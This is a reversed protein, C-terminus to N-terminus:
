THANFPVKANASPLVIGRGERVPMHMQLIKDVSPTAAVYSVFLKGVAATAASSGGGGGGGSSSPAPAGTDHLKPADFMAKPQAADLGSVTFCKGPSSFDWYRICRDTGATVLYSMNSQSIRGLLARVSDQKEAGAVRVGAGTSEQFRVPGLPHRPLAIDELSPLPAIPGRSADLSVTRFCKCCEGGEPIGWVAAENAGASVFLFAGESQPLM